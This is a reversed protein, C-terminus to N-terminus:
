NSIKNTITRTVALVRVLKRIHVTRRPAGQLYLFKYWTPLEDRRHTRRIDRGGRDVRDGAASISIGMLEGIDKQRVGPRAYYRALIRNSLNASAKIEAMKRKPENAM